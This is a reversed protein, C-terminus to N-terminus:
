HRRAILARRALTQRADIVTREAAMVSQLFEVRTASVKQDQVETTSPAAEVDDLLVPGRVINKPEPRFWGMVKERIKKLM